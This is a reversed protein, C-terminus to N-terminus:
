PSEAPMHFATVHARDVPGTFRSFSVSVPKKRADRCATDLGHGAIIGEHLLQRVPIVDREVKALGVIQLCTERIVIPPAIGFSRADSVHHRVGCWGSFLRAEGLLAIQNLLPVRLHVDVM